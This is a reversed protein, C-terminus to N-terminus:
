QLDQQKCQRLDAERNARLQVAGKNESCLYFLGEVEEIPFKLSKAVKQPQVARNTDFRTPFGSYLKKKMVRNM